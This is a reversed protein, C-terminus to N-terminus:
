FTNLIIWYLFYELSKSRDLCMGTCRLHRGCFSNSMYRPSYPDWKRNGSWRCPVWRVLWNWHCWERFALGNECFFINQWQKHFPGLKLFCIGDYQSPSMSGLHTPVHVGLLDAAPVAGAVAARTLALAAELALVALARQLVVGALFQKRANLQMLELLVKPKKPLPDVIFSTVCIKIRKSGKTACLGKVSGAWSM